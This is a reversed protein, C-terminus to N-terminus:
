LVVKEFTEVATDHVGYTGESDSSVLYMGPVKDPNKQADAWWLDIQQVALDKQFGIIRIVKGGHIEPVAVGGKNDAHIPYPLQLSERMAPQIKFMPM